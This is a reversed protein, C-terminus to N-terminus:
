TGGPHLARYRGLHTQALCEADAGSARGDHDSRAPHNGGALPQAARNLPQRGSQFLGGWRALQSPLDDASRQSCYCARRLLVSVRAALEAPEFPKTLHDDAGAEFAKLKDQLGSQATLMLIPTQAFEPERRLSRVVEYGLIDPMMVDSIILDPKLSRALALGTLGNEASSFTLNLGELARTVLSHFISEDDIILVHTM